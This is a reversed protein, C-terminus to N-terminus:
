RRAIAAPAMGMTFSWSADRVACRLEDTTWRDRFLCNTCDGWQCFGVSPLPERGDRLPVHVSYEFDIRELYPKGTSTVLLTIEHSNLWEIFQGYFGSGAPDFEALIDVNAVALVRPPSRSLLAGVAAQVPDPLRLFESVDFGAGRQGNSRLFSWLLEPRVGGSPLLDRPPRSLGPASSASPELEEGPEPAAEVWRFQPDIGGCVLRAAFNVSRRDEGWVYLSTIPIEPTPTLPLLEPPNM